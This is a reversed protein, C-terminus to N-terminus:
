DDIDSLKVRNEYLEDYNDGILEGLIKVESVNDKNLESVPYLGYLSSRDYLIREYIRDLENM